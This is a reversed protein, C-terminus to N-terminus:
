NVGKGAILAAGDAIDKATQQEPTLDGDGSNAVAGVGEAGSTRTENKSGALFDNGLSNQKKMAMFALEKADIPKEGFKAENVLETDAISNEIEEIEKIRQREAEVAANTIEATNVSAKARNEIENVLDPEQQMLEELTMKHGGEEKNNIGKDAEAPAAKFIEVNQPISAFSRVNLPIGNCLFLSKDAAMSMSVEGSIVEDAFGNSVIDEGTMWTTKEIMHKLATKSQGTTEEYVGIVSENAAILENRIADLQQINFYNCLGVSAGHAMVQSSKYVKRTAGAQLILSAASAALGDVITTVNNLEKLRNYISVGAFLDGGISNIRVTISSKSKLNDIDKLFDALVIYLGDVPEGTWWDIPQSEVVEGYMEIEATDDDNETINYPKLNNRQLTPIHPIGNIIRYKHM